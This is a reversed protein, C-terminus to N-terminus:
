RSRFYDEHRHRVKVAAGRHELERLSSVIVNMPLNLSSAIDEVRCPRRKILSLIEAETERHGLRKPSRNAREEYRSVIKANTVSLKFKKAIAELKDPELALVFKESPPRTPTNIQIEDPEIREAQRMMAEVAEDGVNTLGGNESEFFMMQLALEGTMEGRLKVLGEVIRGQLIGRAPRNVAEFLRQDPADLKAVVLDAMALSRRVKEKGVLSSNTLVAIPKDTLNRLSEIIAGLEPNLTPEGSGSFTVYDVSAPDLLDLATKVDRLVQQKTVQAQVFGSAKRLTRGLQCYVCDFTCTKPPPVVDIGLSPGLRWSPVPGYVASIRRKSGM